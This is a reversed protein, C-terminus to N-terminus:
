TKMLQWFSLNIKRYFYRWHCWGKLVMCHLVLKLIRLVLEANSIRESEPDEKGGGNL